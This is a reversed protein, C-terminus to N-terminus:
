RWWTDLPKVPLYHKHENMEFRREIREAIDDPIAHGTLYADMMKFSLGLEDEELLGPKEDLLDATPPKTYIREDAGLLKLLERGQQKTLGTLPTLDAGGDGYKTFYGTLAEAAHCTGVVLVNFHHALRYHVTMREQAKQNGKNFDSMKQGTAQEFSRVAADVAPKINVVLVNDPQIFDLSRQADMEDLQVGYPLRLAIFVYDDRGTERRLEEVAIQCLRGTLSSDQGGSIGLVFGNKNTHLLYDKLFQIRNRVESKPDISPKVQLMNIIKDQLARNETSRGEKIRTVEDKQKLTSM